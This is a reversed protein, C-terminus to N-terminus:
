FKLANSFSPGSLKLPAHQSIRALRLDFISTQQRHFSPPEVNKLESRFFEGLSRLSKVPLVINHSTTLNLLASPDLITSWSLCHQPIRVLKHCYSLRLKVVKSFSEILNSLASPISKAQCHQFTPFSWTQCHRTSSTCASTSPYHRSYQATQAPGSCTFVPRFLYSYPWSCTQVPDLHLRKRLLHMNSCAPLRPPRVINWVQRSRHATKSINCHKLISSLHLATQLTLFAINRLSSFTSCNSRYRFHKSFSSFSKPWSM